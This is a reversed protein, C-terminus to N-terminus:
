RRFANRLDVLQPYVHFFEEVYEDVVVILDCQEISRDQIVGIVRVPMHRFSIDLEQTVDAYSIVHQPMSVLSISTSVGFDGRRALRIFDHYLRSHQPVVTILAGTRDVMTIPADYTRMREMFDHSMHLPNVPRDLLAPKM